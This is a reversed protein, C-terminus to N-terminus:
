GSLELDIRGREYPFSRAASGGKGGGNIVNPNKIVLVYRLHLDFTKKKGTQRGGSPRNGM